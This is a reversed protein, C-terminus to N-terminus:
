KVEKVEMKLQWKKGCKSCNNYGNNIRPHLVVKELCDCEILVGADGHNELIKM